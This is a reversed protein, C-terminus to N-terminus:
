RFNTKNNNAPTTHLAGDILKDIDEIGLQVASQMSLVSPTANGTSALYMISALKKVLLMRQNSLEAVTMDNWLDTRIQKSPDTTYYTVDYENNNDM